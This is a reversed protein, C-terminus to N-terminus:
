FFSKIKVKAGCLGCVLWETSSSMRFSTFFKLQFWKSLSFLLFVDNYKGIKWHNTRSQLNVAIASITQQWKCDGDFIMFIGMLSVQKNRHYKCLRPCHKYQQWSSPDSQGSLRVSIVVTWGMVGSIAEATGSSWLVPPMNQLSIFFISTLSYASNKKASLLQTNGKRNKINEVFYGCRCSWWGM